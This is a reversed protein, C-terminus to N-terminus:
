APLLSNIGPAERRLVTEEETALAGGGLDVELVEVTAVRGREDDGAGVLVGGGAERVLDWVDDGATEEAM